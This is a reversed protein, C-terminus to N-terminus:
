SDTEEADEAAEEDPSETAEEKPDEGAEEPGAKGMKKAAVKDLASNLGDESSPAKKEKTTSPKIATVEIECSCTGAKKDEKYSVIKGKGTFEFEGDPLSDLANGNKDMKHTIFMTPYNVHPGAAEVTAAKPDYKQGLDIYGSDKM